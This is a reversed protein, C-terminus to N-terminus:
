RTVRHGTWPAGKGPLYGLSKDGVGGKVDKYKERRELDRNRREGKKVEKLRLEWNNGKYQPQWPSFPTRIRFIYTFVEM